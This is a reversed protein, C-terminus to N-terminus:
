GGGAGSEVAPVKPGLTRPTGPATAPPPRARRPRSLWGVCCFGIAYLFLFFSFARHYETYYVIFSVLSYLGMAIEVLWMHNRAVAYSSTRRNSDESGSKPTRVFEGGRLRLGRVVALSNNVCLGCGLILMSPITKLGSWGGGLSYRAYTYTMSPAFASLLIVAWAIWFWEQFLKGDTFVLLMPRAVLALLLM